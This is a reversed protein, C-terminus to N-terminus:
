SAWSIRNIIELLSGYEARERVVPSARTEEETLPSIVGTAVGVAYTRALPGTCGFYNSIALQRNGIKIVCVSAM